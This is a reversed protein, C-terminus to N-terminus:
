DWTGFQYVEGPLELSREFVEVDGSVQVDHHPRGWLALLVQVAPGRVVARGHTESTIETHGVVSGHAGLLEVAIAGPDEDAARRIAPAFFQAFYTAADVAEAESMSHPHGLAAEVDLRHVGLESAAHWAWLGLDGPGGTMSFFCPQAEDTAIRDMASHGWGALTEPTSAEPLELAAALARDRATSDDPPCRMMLEWFACARGVHVAANYVTWGPCNPVPLQMEDDTRGTVYDIAQRAVGIREHFQVPKGWPEATGHETLPM